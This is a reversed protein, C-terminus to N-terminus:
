TKKLICDAEVPDGKKVNANRPITEVFAYGTKACTITVDKPDADTSFTALSYKGGDDARTILVAGGVKFDVTVKAEPVPNGHDDRVVGFYPVGQDDDGELAGAGAFVRPSLSVAVALVTAAFALSKAMMHVPGRRSM